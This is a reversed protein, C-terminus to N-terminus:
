LGAAAAISGEVKDAHWGLILVAVGGAAVVAAVVTVCVVDVALPAWLEVDHLGVGISELGRWVSAISWVAFSVVAVTISAALAVLFRPVLHRALIAWAVLVGDVGQLLEVRLDGEGGLRMESDLQRLIALGEGHSRVIAAGPVEVLYLVIEVRIHGEGNAVPALGPARHGPEILLGAALALAAVIWCEGDLIDLVSRTTSWTRAWAGVM